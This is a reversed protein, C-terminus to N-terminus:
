KSGALLQQASQVDSQIQARLEEVSSFKQVGRIKKLFDVRVFQGYLDGAFNFLHTEIRVLQDGFTPLPGLHTVSDFAKGEVWTRTAYVGWDPNVVKELHLNATPFGIRRGRSEGHVVIGALAYPRGLLNAARDVEGQALAKRVESTSVTGLQPFSVPEHVKIEVQNQAGWTKLLETTGLRGAGFRFNFGVVIALPSFQPFLIQDLFQAATLESFDRNFNLYVVGDLGLREFQMQQDKLDFLRLHPPRLIELPHPDFTVVLAPGNKQDALHRATKLLEQHGLHVGDFNGIVIVQPRGRMPNELLGRAVFFSM